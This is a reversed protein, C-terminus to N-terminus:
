KGISKIQEIPIVKYKIGRTTNIRFSIMTGGPLIDVELIHDIHSGDELFFTTHGKMDQVKLIDFAAKFDKARMDPNIVMVDQLGGKKSVAIANVHSEFAKQMEPSLGEFSGKVEGPISLEAMLPSSITLLIFLPYKM